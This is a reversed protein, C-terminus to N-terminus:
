SNIQQWVEGNFKFVDTYFEDPVIVQLQQHYKMLDYWPVCYNLHHEFHLSINLPM